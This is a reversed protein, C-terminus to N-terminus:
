VQESIGTCRFGFDTKEVSSLAMRVGRDDDMFDGIRPEVNPLFPMLIITRPMAVDLPLKFGAASPRGKDLASVPCELLIEEADLPDYGGYPNEGAFPTGQPRTLRVRRNCQVVNTPMLPETANIFFTVGNGDLIDGSKIISQDIIAQYVANGYQSAKMYDWSVNYSMFIDQVYNEIAIPNIGNPARYLAFTQGIKQAAKAYGYSIREQVHAYSVM